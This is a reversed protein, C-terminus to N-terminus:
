EEDSEFSAARKAMEEGLIARQEPTLVEAIALMTETLDRSKADALAIGQKRLKEIKAPDLDAKTFEARLEHRLEKLDARAEFARPAAEDLIADIETRQDATADVRSLAREAVMGMRDRVEDASAAAHFRGHGEGAPGRAFAFGAPLAVLLGGLVATRLLNNRNFLSM